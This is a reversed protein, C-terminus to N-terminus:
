RRCLDGRDPLGNASLQYEPPIPDPEPQPNATAENEVPTQAGGEEDWGEDDWGEDDWGEDNWGEDGGESEGGDGAHTATQGLPTAIQKAYSIKMEFVDKRAGPRNPRRIRTMGPLVKGGRSQLEDHVITWLWTPADTAEPGLAHLSAGAFWWAGDVWAFDLREEFRANRIIVRERGKHWRQDVVEYPGEILPGGGLLLAVVQEADLDVGLLTAVACQSPPGHYYGARLGPAERVTRLGYAQENLALTVLPNGAVEITGLMRSPSEALLLLRAGPSRGERVKAKPVRLKAYRPATAPLLETLSPNDGRQYPAKPYRTRCGPAALLAAAFVLALSRPM